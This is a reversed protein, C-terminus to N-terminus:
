FHKSLHSELSANRTVAKLNRKFTCMRMACVIKSSRILVAINISNLKDGLGSVPEAGREKYCLSNM